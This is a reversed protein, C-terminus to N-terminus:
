KGLNFLNQNYKANFKRVQVKTLEDYEKKSLTNLTQSGLHVVVSDYSLVPKVNIKKLQEIVANDACWFSFDEDFGHIKEWTSKKIM